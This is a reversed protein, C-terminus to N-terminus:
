VVYSAKDHSTLRVFGAGSEDVRRGRETAFYNNYRALLSGLIARDAQQIPEQTLGKPVSDEELQHRLYIVGGRMGAGLHVGPKGLLVIIGGTMREGLFGGADGGIVLAAQRQGAQEMRTGVYWGGTDRVFITGGRMECGVADGCRGHVIVCGDNMAAGTQEQADGFVEVTGGDLYCAAEAGVADCVRLLKGRPLACGLYRQAFAGRVEVAGARDFAQRIRENAVMVHDTELTIVGSSAAEQDACLMGTGYTCVELATPRMAMSEDGM